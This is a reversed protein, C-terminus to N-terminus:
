DRAWTKVSEPTGCASAQVRPEVASGRAVAQSLLVLDLRILKVPPTLEVSEGSANFHFANRRDSASKELCDSGQDMGNRLMKM